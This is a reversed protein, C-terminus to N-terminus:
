LPLEVFFTTGKGPKSEFWIKGGHAQVIQKSIALGMGFSKEGATGTRRAETFMDFVKDKVEEPIGLGHDEVEVVAYGPKETLRVEIVAGHPSFKIVNAILNSIVRWMKENDISVIM